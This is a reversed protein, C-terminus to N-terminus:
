VWRFRKGQIGATWRSLLHWLAARRMGSTRAAWAGVAESGGRLRSSAGTGDRMRGPSWSFGARVEPKLAPSLSAWSPFPHSHTSFSTSLSAAQPPGAPTRLVGQCPRHCKSRSGVDGLTVRGSPLFCLQFKAAAATSSHEFGVSECCRGADAENEPSGGSGGRSSGRKVM